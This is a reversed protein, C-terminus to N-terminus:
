GGVVKPVLVIREAKPDFVDIAFGERQGKADSRYAKFGRALAKKFAEKALAIENKDGAQWRLKIDGDAGWIIRLESDYPAGRQRRQVARARELVDHFDSIAASTATM